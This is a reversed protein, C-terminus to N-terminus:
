WKKGRISPELPRGFSFNTSEVTKSFMPTRSLGGGMRVPLTLGIKGPSEFVSQVQPAYKEGEYTAQKRGLLMFNPMCLRGPM